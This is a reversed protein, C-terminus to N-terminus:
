KSEVIEVCDGPKSFYVCPRYFEGTGAPAITMNFEEKWNKIFTLLQKIPNFQVHIVDGVEYGFSTVKHNLDPDSHSYTGGASDNIYHGHGLYEWSGEEFFGSRAESELCIGIGIYLSKEV